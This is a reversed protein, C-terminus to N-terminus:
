LFNEKRGIIFVTSIRTQGSFHSLCERRRNNTVGSETISLVHLLAEQFRDAPFFSYLSLYHYHRIQYDVKALLFFHRNACGAVLVLLGTAAEIFFRSKGFSAHIINKIFKTVTQVGLQIRADCQSISSVRRAIPIGVPFL